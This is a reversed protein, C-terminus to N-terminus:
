LTRLLLRDRELAVVEYQQDAQGPIQFILTNGLLRWRGRIAKHRDDAGPATITVVGDSKLEFSSRGRSPPFAREGPRFTKAAPLDEEHSHTWLRVISVKNSEDSAM